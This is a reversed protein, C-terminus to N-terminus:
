CQYLAGQFKPSFSRFQRIFVNRENENVSDCTQNHSVQLYRNMHNIISAALKIDVDLRQPTGSLAIPHVIKNRM